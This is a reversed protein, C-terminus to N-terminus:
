RMFAALRSTLRGTLAPDCLTVTCAQSELPVANLVGNLMVTLVPGGGVGVGVGVGVGGCHLAALVPTVTQVGADPAIILEGTRTVAAAFDAAPGIM